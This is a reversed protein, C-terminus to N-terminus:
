NDSVLVNTGRYQPTLSAITLSPDGLQFTGSSTLKVVSTDTAGISLNAGTGLLNGGKAALVGGGSVNWTVNTFKNSTSASSADINSLYLTGGDVNWNTPVTLATSGNSSAFVRANIEATGTNT